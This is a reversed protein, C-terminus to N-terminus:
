VEKWGMPFVSELDRNIVDVMMRRMRRGKDKRMDDEKELHCKQKVIIVFYKVWVEFSIL